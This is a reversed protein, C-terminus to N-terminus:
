GGRVVLLFYDREYKRQVENEPREFYLIAAVTFCWHLYPKM